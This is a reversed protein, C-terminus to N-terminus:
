KKDFCNSNRYGFANSLSDFVPKLATHFSIEDTCIGDLSNIIDRELPHSIDRWEDSSVYGKGLLISASIHWPKPVQLGELINCYNELGRILVDQTSNWNYIQHDRYESFLRIESTEIIGNHFIQTYAGIIKKDTTTFVCYGDANYRHDWGSGSIPRFSNNIYLSHLDVFNGLEFSWEPIIYFVIKPGTGMDGICENALIMSIRDNRFQRIKDQLGNAYLFSKRLDDIDMNTVINAARMHFEERNGIKRCHPRAYSKPISIVIAINDSCLKVPICNIGHLRPKIRSLMVQNFCALWEEYKEESLGAGVLEAPNHNDDERIGIIITGGNTNAFATVVKLLDDKIKDTMKGDTFQFSKYELERDESVKDDILQQLFEKNINKIDLIPM